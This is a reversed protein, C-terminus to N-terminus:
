KGKPWFAYLLVMVVLASGGAIMLVSLWNRQTLGHIEDPANSDDISASQSHPIPKNQPTSDFRSHPTLKQDHIIQQDSSNAETSPPLSIESLNTAVHRGLLTKIASHDVAVREFGNALSNSYSGYLAKMDSIFGETIPIRNYEPIVIGHRIQTTWPKNRYKNWFREINLVRLKQAQKTNTNSQGYEPKNETDVIMAASFEYFGFFNTKNLFFSLGTNNLIEELSGAKQFNNYDEQLFMISETFKPDTLFLLYLEGGYLEPAIIVSLSNTYYPLVQQTYIISNSPFDRNISEVVKFNIAKLKGFQEFLNNILDDSLTHIPTHSSFLSYEYFQGVIISIDKNTLGHSIKQTLEDLTNQNLWLTNEDFLM